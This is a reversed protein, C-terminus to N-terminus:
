EDVDTVVSVEVTGSAVRAFPRHGPRFRQTIFAEFDEGQEVFRGKYDGSTAVLSGGYFVDGTVPKISVTYDHAPAPDVLPTADTGVIVTRASPM